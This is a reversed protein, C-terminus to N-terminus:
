DVEYGHCSNFIQYTLEYTKAADLWSSCVSAPKRTEHAALLASIQNDYPDDGPFTFVEFNDSEPSRVHLEPTTYPEIIRLLHGDTHIELEANYKKGQLNIGHNISGVAGGKYKWIATTFRPVRDSPEITEEEVPVKSLKGPPEYHEVSHAMVSEVIVDGGFYRSLDCFHTGQEIIPAGSVSKMWWGRKAIASYTSCYRAVTAMVTLGKCEIIEKAKRVVAMHRMFYGAVVLAGLQELKQGVEFVEPPPSASIPKEVFICIGPLGEALQIELDRGPSTSGHAAPPIGILVLTPREIEGAKVAELMKKITEFGHTGVYSSARPGARKVELVKERSEVTPQVLAVVRLRDGLEADLRATHNWPGEVSGFNVGGAGVVAVNVKDSM